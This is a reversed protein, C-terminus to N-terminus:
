AIVRDNKHIIYEDLDELLKTVELETWRYGRQYDPIVFSKYEKIVESISKLEISM